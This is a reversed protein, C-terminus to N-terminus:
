KFFYGFHMSSFEIKIYILLFIFLFDCIKTLKRLIKIFYETKTDEEIKIKSKKSM